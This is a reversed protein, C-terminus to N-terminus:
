SPLSAIGTTIANEIQTIQASSFYTAATASAQILALATALSGNGLCREIQALSTDSLMAQFQTLTLTNATLNAENIAYIQAIIQAGITQAVLGKQVATAQAVQATVDTSAVSYEAAFVYQTQTVAPIADAGNTLVINGASPIQTGDGSTLTLQNTPNAMNWASILASITSKADAALSVNGQSGATQATINIFTSTGAPIGTFSAALAPVAQAITVVSSSQANAPNLMTGDIDILIGGLNPIITRQPKGWWNGAEGQAIWANTTTQDPFTAQWGVQNTKLNTISVQISM